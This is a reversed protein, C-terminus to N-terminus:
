QERRYLGLSKVRGGPEDATLVLSLNNALASHLTMLYSQVDGANMGEDPEYTFDVARRYAHHDYYFCSLPAAFGGPKTTLWRISCTYETEAFASTTHMIMFAIIGLFHRM